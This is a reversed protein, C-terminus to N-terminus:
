SKRWCKRDGNIVYVNFYLILFSYFGEFEYVMLKKGVIDGRGLFDVM